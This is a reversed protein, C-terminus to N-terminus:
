LYIVEGSKCWDDYNSRINSELDKHPEVGKVLLVTKTDDDPSLYVDVTGNENQHISYFHRGEPPSESNRM